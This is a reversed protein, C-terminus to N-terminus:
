TDLPLTPPGDTDGDRLRQVYGRAFGGSDTAVLAGTLKNVVLEGFHGILRQVLETIVTLFDDWTVRRPLPPEYTLRLSNIYAVVPAAEPFVLASPLDYRVIAYFHRHLAGPGNELEFRRGPRMTEVDVNNVGLLTYARAILQYFEPMNTQSNTAALLVGDSKLVRHIESLARDLDPVHYLMHNALVVDFYRAPFPLTQVDGNFIAPTGDFTRSRASTAMGLSLDGGILAGNPLRARLPEHYVGPGMGVDLVREHGRWQVRDLVWEVFDTKPVTYQDHTRQRVRLSADSLYEQQTLTDHEPASFENSM